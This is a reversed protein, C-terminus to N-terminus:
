TGHMCTRMHTPLEQLRENSVLAEGMVFIPKPAVIAKPFLEDQSALVEDASMGWEAAWMKAEEM